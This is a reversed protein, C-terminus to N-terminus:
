MFLLLWKVLKGNADFYFDAMRKNLGMQYHYGGFRYVKKTGVGMLTYVDLNGSKRAFKLQCVGPETMKDEVEARTMGKALESIVHNKQDKNLMCLWKNEVYALSGCVDTNNRLIMLLGGGKEKMPAVKINKGSWCLTYKGKEAYDIVILVTNGESGFHMIEFTVKHKSPDAKEGDKGNFDVVGSLPKTIKYNADLFNGGKTLRMAEEITNDKQAFVNTSLLLGMVLLVSQFLIKKM